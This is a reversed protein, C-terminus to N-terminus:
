QRLSGSRLCVHLHTLRQIGMLRVVILSSFEIKREESYYKMMQPKKMSTKNSFQRNVRTNWFWWLYINATAAKLFHFIEMREDIEAANVVAWNIIHHYFSLHFIIIRLFWIGRFLINDHIYFDVIKNNQFNLLNNLYPKLLPTINTCSMSHTFTHCFQVVGVICGDTDCPGNHTSASIFVYSNFVVRTVKWFRFLFGRATYAALVIEPIRLM